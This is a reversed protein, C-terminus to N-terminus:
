RMAGVREETSSDVMANDGRDDAGKRRRGPYILGRTSSRRIM